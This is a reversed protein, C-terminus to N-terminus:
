PLVPPEVSFRSTSRATRGRVTPLVQCSENALLHSGLARKGLVFQVGYAHLCKLMYAHLFLSTDLCFLTYLRGFMYARAYLRTYLYAHLCILAYANFSGYLVVIAPIISYAETCHSLAFNLHCM